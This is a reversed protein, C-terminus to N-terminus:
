RRQVRRVSPSCSPSVGLATALLEVTDVKPLMGGTEINTITQRTTQAADALTTRTLGLTSRVDRLRVGISIDVAKADGGEEGGEGYALWGPAVALTAALRAVTDIRPMVLRREIRYAANSSLKAQGVTTDCESAATRRSTV